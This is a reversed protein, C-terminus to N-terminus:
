RAGPTAHDIPIAGGSVMCKEPGVTVTLECPQGMAVGQRITFEGGVSIAGRERLYVGFAAAASGTAPDEYVGGFAFPNRSQWVTPSERAVLQVTPWRQQRSLEALGSFDYDLAQLTETSNLVLIPHNNGAYAVLPALEPDLDTRSWGFIELLQDLLHEALPSVHGPPSTLQARMGDPSHTVDVAVPGANTEFVFSGPGHHNGLAVGAAITAHGCFDIEQEPSFYKVRLHDTSDDVIFVTESYGVEAAIEQMRARSLGRADLVVGAPNGGRGKTSFAALRLIDISM